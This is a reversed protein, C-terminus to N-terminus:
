VAKTPSVLHHPKLIVNQILFRFNMRSNSKPDLSRAWHEKRQEVDQFDAEPVTQLHYFSSLIIDAASRQTRSFVPTLSLSTITVASEVNIPIYLTM